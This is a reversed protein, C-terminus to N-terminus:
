VALIKKLILELEDQDLLGLAYLSYDTIQNNKEVVLVVENYKEPWRGKLVKYMQKNLDQNDFMEVFVNMSMFQSQMDNLGMGMKDMIDKPNVKVVKNDIDSKYINLDLNYSYTIANTLEQMEKNKDLFKKFEELNNSQVKSTMVNMMKNMVNNSTIIGNKIKVEEKDSHSNM